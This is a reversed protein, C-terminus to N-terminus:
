RTPSATSATPRRGVVLRPARGCVRRLGVAARGRLRHVADARRAGPPRPPVPAGDLGAADRDDGTAERADVTRRVHDAHTTTTPVPCRRSSGTSRSQQTAGATEHRLRPMWGCSEARRSRSRRMELVLASAADRATVSSGRRPTAPATRHARRELPLSAPRRRPAGAARTPGDLRRGGAAVRSLQWAADLTGPARRAASAQARAADLTPQPCRARARDGLAARAAPRRGPRRDGPRRRAGARQVSADTMRTEKRRRASAPAASSSGPPCSSRGPSAPRSRRHARDRARAARRGLEVRTTALHRQRRDCRGHRLRRLRDARHPRRRRPRAAVRLAGVTVRNNGTILRDARDDRALLEGVITSPRCPSTM